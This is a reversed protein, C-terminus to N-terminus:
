VSYSRAVASTAPGPNFGPGTAFGCVVTSVQSRRRRRDLISFMGVPHLRDEPTDGQSQQHRRDLITFIARSPVWTLGSPAQSRRRRQNLISVVMRGLLTAM